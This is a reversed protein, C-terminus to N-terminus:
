FPSYNYDEDDNELYMVDPLLAESREFAESLEKNFSLGRISAELIYSPLLDDHIELLEEKAKEKIYESDVNHIASTVNSEHTANLCTKYKNIKEIFLKITNTLHQDDMSSIYITNGERTRHKKM